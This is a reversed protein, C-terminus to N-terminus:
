KPLLYKKMGSGNCSQCPWTAYPTIKIGRGQCALCNVWVERYINFRDLCREASNYHGPCGLMGCNFM